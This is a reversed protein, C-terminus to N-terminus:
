DQTPYHRGHELLSATAAPRREPDRGSLQNPYVHVTAGSMRCGDIISAHNLEDSYIADGKGLSRLLRVSMPRMGRQFLAAGSRDRRSRSAQAGTGRAVADAQSWHVRAPVGATRDIAEKAAAAIRPDAALGLYDNSGFNILTQGGIEVAAGRQPGAREALKRYLGRRGLDALSDDLWDLPDPM